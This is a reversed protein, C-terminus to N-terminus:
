IEGRFLLERRRQRDERARARVPGWRAKVRELGERRRAAHDAPAQCCMLVFLHSCGFRRALAAVSNAAPDAARLARMSAVDSETLNHLKEAHAYSPHLVPPLDTPPSSSSSSAPNSTSRSYSITTSSDFLSPLNARRRPDNKPLFKFPTHYISPASSPPNFIIHGGPAKDSSGSAVLFSPHPQINLARKMRGATSKARRSTMHIPQPFLPSSRASSLCCQAAPRTLMRLEM